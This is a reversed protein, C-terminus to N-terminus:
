KEARKISVSLGAWSGQAFTTEMFPLSLVDDVFSASGWGGGMPM